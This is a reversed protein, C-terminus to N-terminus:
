MLLFVMRLFFMRSFLPGIRFKRCTDSNWSGLRKMNHATQQTRECENRSQAWVTKCPLIIKCFQQRFRQGTVFYLMFNVTHNTYMLSPKSRDDFCFFNSDRLALLLNVIISNASENEKRKRVSGIFM